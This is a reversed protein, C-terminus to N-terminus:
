VNKIILKRKEFLELVQSAKKGFTNAFKQFGEGNNRIFQSVKRLETRTLKKM